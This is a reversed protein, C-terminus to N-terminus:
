SDSERLRGVARQDHNVLSRAMLVYEILKRLRSKLVAKPMTAELRQNEVDRGQRSPPMKGAALIIRWFFVDNTAYDVM